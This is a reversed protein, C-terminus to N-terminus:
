PKAGSNDYELGSDIGKLSAPVGRTMWVPPPAGKLYYDFFQKTRITVDKAANGSAVHDEGDYQLMWAKKGLRRLGTFFEIGQQYPVDSDNKNAMMLLPTTIQDAHLVPSNEIYKDPMQWLTGWM